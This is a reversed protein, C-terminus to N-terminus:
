VKILATPTFNRETYMRNETLLQYVIRCMRRAVITIATNAKKGRSRHYRYLGGFYSSCGVAVWAAEIFAWKLWKNCQWIMRGNYTKGGSSHTTPALGSYGTYRQRSQFRGIGDTETAIIHAIILGIGPISLLLKVVNDVKGEKEINTEDAKILEDLHELMALNQKLLMNDPEPLIAKYLAQKGKKGFIDSVQPMQLNHQKSIIKHVRNRIGTRHKVWYARQRLVEKRDRTHRDPIHCSPVVDLRLLMALKRSDIKDTKIQAEAILRVKYPNALTISEICDIKELIEYLWSWNISSEYVAKVPGDLDEFLKRFIEPYYHNIRAQRIMKGDENIITVVSYKKHYDIGAYDM